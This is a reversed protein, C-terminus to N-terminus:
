RKRRYGANASLRGFEVGCHMTDFYPVENPGRGYGDYEGAWVSYSVNDSKYISRKKRTIKLIKKGDFVTPPPLEKSQDVSRTLLKLYQDCFLCKPRDPKHSM